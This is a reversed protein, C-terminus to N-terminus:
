ENQQSQKNNNSLLTTQGRNVSALRLVKCVMIDLHVFGRAGLFGVGM